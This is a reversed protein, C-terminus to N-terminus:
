VAQVTQFIPPRTQSGDDRSALTGAGSTYMPRSELLRRLLTRHCPSGHWASNRSIRSCRDSQRLM